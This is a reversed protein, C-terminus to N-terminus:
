SRNRAPAPPHTGRGPNGLAEDVSAKMAEGVGPAKPWSTAANDLYIM